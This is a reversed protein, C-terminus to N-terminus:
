VKGQQKQMWPLIAQTAGMSKVLSGANGEPCPDWILNEALEFQAFFTPLHQIYGYAQIFYTMNYQM